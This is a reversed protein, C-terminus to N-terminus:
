LNRCVTEIRLDIRHWPFRPFGPTSRHYLHVQVQFSRSFDVIVERELSNQLEGIILGAVLSLPTSDTVGPETGTLFALM